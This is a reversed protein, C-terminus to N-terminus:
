RPTFICRTDGPHATVQDKMGIYLMEPDHGEPFKVNFNKLVMASVLRIELM